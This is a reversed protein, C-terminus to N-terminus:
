DPGNLVIDTIVLTGFPSGEIRGITAGGPFSEALIGEVQERVINRGWATHIAILAFAVAVVVVALLGITLRKFWRWFTKM